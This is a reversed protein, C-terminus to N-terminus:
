LSSLLALRIDRHYCAAVNRLGTILYTRPAFNALGRWKSRFVFKNNDNLSHNECFCRTDVGSNDEIVFCSKVPIMKWCPMNWFAVSIVAIASDLLRVVIVIDRSGGIQTYAHWYTHVCDGHLLPDSTTMPHFRFNASIASDTTIHTYLHVYVLIYTSLRKPLFYLTFLSFIFHVILDICNERKKDKTSPNFITNLLSETVELWKM